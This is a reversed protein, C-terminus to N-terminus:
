GGCGRIVSNTADDNSITVRRDSTAAFGFRNALRSNQCINNGNEIMRPLFPTALWRCLDLVTQEPASVVSEFHVVRAREGLREIAEM